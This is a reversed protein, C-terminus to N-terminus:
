GALKNLELLDSKEFIAGGFNAVNSFSTRSFDVDDTFIASNFSIKPFTWREENKDFNLSGEVIYWVFQL